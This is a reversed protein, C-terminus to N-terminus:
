PAAYFLREVQCRDTLPTPLPRGPAATVEGGGLRVVPSSGTRVEDIYRSVEYVRAVPWVVLADGIMLCSGVIQATGTYLADDWGQPEYVAIWTGDLDLVRLGYTADTLAGDLGSPSESTADDPSAAGQGDVDVVAPSEPTEEVNDPSDQAASACGAAVFLCVSLCRALVHM